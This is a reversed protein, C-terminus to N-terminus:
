GSLPLTSQPTSLAAALEADPSASDGCHLPLPSVTCLQVHPKNTEDLECLISTITPLVRGCPTKFPSVRASATKVPTDVQRELVSISIDDLELMRSTRLPAPQLSLDPLCSDNLRVKDM